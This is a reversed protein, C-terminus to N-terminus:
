RARTEACFVQTGDLGDSGRVPEGEPCQRRRSVKGRTAESQEAGSLKNTLCGTIVCMKMAGLRPAGIVDSRDM